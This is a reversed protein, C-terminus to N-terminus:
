GRRRSHTRTDIWARLRQPPSTRAAADSPAAGTAAESSQAVRSRLQERVEEPTYSRRRREARVILVGTAAVTALGALGLKKRWGM